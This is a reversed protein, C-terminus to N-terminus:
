RKITAGIAAGITLLGAAAAAVTVPTLEVPKSWWPAAAQPVTAPIAEMIREALDVPAHTHRRVELDRDLRKWFEVIRGAEAGRVGSEPLEGDLWAHIQDPTRTLEIPVERDALKGAERGRAPRDQGAEPTEPARSRADERGDRASLDDHMV